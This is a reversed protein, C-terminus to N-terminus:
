IMGLINVNNRANEIMYRKMYRDVDKEDDTEYMMRVTEIDDENEELNWREMRHYARAGKM